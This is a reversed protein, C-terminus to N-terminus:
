KVKYLAREKDTFHPKSSIIEGAGELVKLGEPNLTKERTKIRLASVVSSDGACM